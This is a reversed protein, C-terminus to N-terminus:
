RCCSQHRTARQQIETTNQKYRYEANITLTLLQKINEISKRWLVNHARQTCIVYNLAVSYCGKQSVTDYGSLPRWVYIHYSNLYTGVNLLWLARTCKSM